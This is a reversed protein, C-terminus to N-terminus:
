ALAPEPSYERSPAKAFKRQYDRAFHTPSEYGVEFSASAVSHRGGRLLDRAAIMRLEKQYQLPTTGTVQKFHSHFSSLSMCASQALEPVSLTQRFRSRIDLIAKAVRSAHSDVSLLTRLMGGTPSMLLRFHIERLISPGLVAVEVPDNLLELYRAIAQLVPTEAPGASLSRAPLSKGSLSGIQEHLSRVLGLELSIILALYPDQPSASTIRSQVPLDHSVVLVDGAQLRVSQSGITTEKGGKLVLCVVPNYVVSDFRSVESKKLVTLGPLQSRGGEGNRAWLDLAPAILDTFQM